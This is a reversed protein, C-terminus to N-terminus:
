WSCPKGPLATQWLKVARSMDAWTYDLWTEQNVDYDRYAISQPSRKAREQFLGDLTQATEISIMDM